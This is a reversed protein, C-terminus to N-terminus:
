KNKRLKALELGALRTSATWHLQREHGLDIDRSNSQVWVVKNKRSATAPVTSKVFLLFGNTTIRIPSAPLRHGYQSMHHVRIADIVGDSLDM